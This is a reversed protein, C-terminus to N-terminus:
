GRLERSFAGTDFDFWPPRRTKFRAERVDFKTDPKADFIVQQIISLAAGYADAAESLTIDGGYRISTADRGSRILALKGRDIANAGLSEARDALGSLEHIYPPTQGERRILLKLAKETAQSADWAASRLGAENRECLNRASSQLDARVSGALEAISLNDEYELSRVDFGISRVLNATDLTANRVVNLEEGSFSRIVGRNQIWSLPDEEAQVSAPYGIWVMNPEDASITFRRPVRMPFPTGHVLLMSLFVGDNEDYVADGYRNRYWDQIIILFRGYAENILFAKHDSVQLMTDRVIDFAKLERASIPVNAQSLAQDIQPLAEHLILAVKKWNGIDDTVSTM